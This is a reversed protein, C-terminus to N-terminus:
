LVETVAILLTMAFFLIPAYSLEIHRKDLFIEGAKDKYRGKFIIIPLISILAAGFLVSMYVIAFGTSGSGRIWFISILNNLFHLLVSPIISDFAIDLSAFIVGAFLAYPIQYLNCHALAFFVASFIVAGRKTHPAIFAIPIYRFLAEELCATILAHTLIVRIINGSVDATSGEGIHSLILSTLWSILFVLALTPAIAPLTLLLNKRSIKLKIPYFDADTSRKLCFAIAIPLLFALYYILEGFIGDALASFSLAAIFILDLLSVYTLARKM